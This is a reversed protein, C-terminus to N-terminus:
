GPPPHPGCRKPHPPNWMVGGFFHFFCVFSGVKFLIMTFIALNLLTGRWFAVVGLCNPAYLSGAPQLTDHVTVSNITVNMAVYSSLQIESAVKELWSVVECWLDDLHLTWTKKGSWKSVNTLSRILRCPRCTAHDGFTWFISILNLGTVLHAGVLQLYPGM